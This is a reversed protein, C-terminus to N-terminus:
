RQSNLVNDGIPDVKPCKIDFNHSLIRTKRIIAKLYIVHVVLHPLQQTIPGDCGKFIIIM